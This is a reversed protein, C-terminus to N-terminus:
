FNPKQPPCSVQCLQLAAPSSIMSWTTSPPVSLPRTGQLVSMCCVGWLGCTLQVPIRRAMKSCSQPWTVHRVVSQRCFLMCCELMNLALCQPFHGMHSPQHCVYTRHLQGHAMPWHPLLRSLCRYLTCLMHISLIALMPPTAVPMHFIDLLPQVLSKQSHPFSEYGSYVM